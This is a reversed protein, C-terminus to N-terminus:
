SDLWKRKMKNDQISKKGGLPIKYKLAKNKYTLKKNIKWNLKWESHQEIKNKLRWEKKERNM